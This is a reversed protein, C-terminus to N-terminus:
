SKRFRYIDRGVLQDDRAYKLNLEKQYGLEEARSIVKALRLDGQKTRFFPLGIVLPGRFGSQQLTKFFSTYLETLESLVPELEGRSRLRVQPPGLYGECVIADFRKGSIPKTADHEFLDAKAKPGFEDRLWSVNKQAGKLTEANIDSGLIDRGMLLGEMVLVGGGCFPDWITKSDGALNIMIQALKPPLMGVKMSRFPKKYDRKSYADIDQVAIVEALYFDNGHKAIIIEPGNLGKSQATSINKFQQNAFRSGIGRKKFEKKLDLLLSRLNKESWGYVNIGYNLKGSEHGDAMRDAISSVLSRKEVKAFVEGAKIQGGLQNFEAQDLPRGLDAMVFTENKIVGKMSYYRAELEATSLGPDKGLIFIYTSM